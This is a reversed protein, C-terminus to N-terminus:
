RGLPLGYHGTTTLKLNISIDRWILQHKQFVLIMNAKEMAKRGMLLPIHCTVVDTTINGQVGGMWCPISVRGKSKAMHGGGFTFQQTSKEWAVLDQFEEELSNIYNNLWIEGCVTTACGSDLIAHGYSELVLTQLTNNASVNTCGVFLSVKDHSEFESDDLTQENMVLFNFQPGTNNTDEMNTTINVINM